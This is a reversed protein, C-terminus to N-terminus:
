GRGEQSSVYGMLPWQQLHNDKEWPRSISEDGPPNAQKKGRLKPLSWTKPVELKILLFDNWGPNQDRKKFTPNRLSWWPHTENVQKKFINKRLVNDFGTMYVLRVNLFAFIYPDFFIVMSYNFSNKCNWGWKSFCVCLFRYSVGAGSMFWPGDSRKNKKCPRGIPKGSCVYKKQPNVRWFCVSTNGVNNM